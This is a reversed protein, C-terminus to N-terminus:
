VEATSIDREAEEELGIAGLIKICEETDARRREEGGRIEQGPEKVRHMIVNLKRVVRERYEEKSVFDDNKKHKAERNRKKELEQDAKRKVKLFNEM